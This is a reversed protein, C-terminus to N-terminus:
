CRRATLGGAHRYGDLSVQLPAFGICRERLHGRQPGPFTIQGAVSLRFAKAARADRSVEEGEETDRQSAAAPEGGLLFLRSPVPDYHDAVGQPSPSIAGIGGQDASVDVDVSLAM